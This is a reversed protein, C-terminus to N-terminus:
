WDRGLQCSVIIVDPRNYCSFSTMSKYVCPLRFMLSKFPGIVATMGDETTNRSSAKREYNSSNLGTVSPAWLNAYENCNLRPSSRGRTARSSSCIDRNQTTSIAAIADRQPWALLYKKFKPYQIKATNQKHLGFLTTFRKSFLDRMVITRASYLQKWPTFPTNKRSHSSSKALPPLNQIFINARLSEKSSSEDFSRTLINDGNM